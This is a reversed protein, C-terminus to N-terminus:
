VRQRLHQRLLVRLRAAEPTERLSVTRPRPITVIVEEVIRGPLPSLVVIRDALFVAEEIDHTVMIVAPSLSAHINAVLEQMVERTQADLSGFPEDMLLLDTRSVLARALAARQKMGGSLEAPFYDGFERLGVMEIYQQVEGLGEADARCSPGFAVNERVTLWPFLADTQFVMGCRKPCCQAPAGRVLVEGSQTRLFGAILNILTTKGCGSPGLLCVVEGQAVRLDVNNLVQLATTDGDSGHRAYAFSASKLEVIPTNADNM